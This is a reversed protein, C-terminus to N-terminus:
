AAMDEERMCRRMSRGEEIKDEEWSDERMRMKRRMRPDEKRMRLTTIRFCRGNRGYLRRSTEAALSKDFM